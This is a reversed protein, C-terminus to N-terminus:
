ILGILNQQLVLKLRGLCDCLDLNMKCSPDLDKLSNQFSFFETKYGFFYLIYLLNHSLGSSSHYLDSHHIDLLVTDHM